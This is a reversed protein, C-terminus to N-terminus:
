ISNDLGSNPDLSLGLAMDIIEQRSHVGLKAYINRTHYNVTGASISLEEQIRASSRGEAILVVVEGERESLAFRESLQACRAVIAEHPTLPAAGVAISPAPPIDAVEEVATAAEDGHESAAADDAAVGGDAASDDAAAHPTNDVLGDEGATAGEASEIFSFGGRKLVLVLAVTVLLGVGAMLAFSASHAIAFPDAGALAGDGVLSGVIDSLAYACRAGLYVRAPSAHRTRAFLTSAFLLLLEFVVSGIPYVVDVLFDASFRMQPLMIVLLGTVPLVFLATFTRQALSFLAMGVFLLTLGTVAIDFWAGYNYSVAGGSFSGLLASIFGIVAICGLFVTTLAGAGWTGHVARPAMETRIGRMRRESWALCGGGLLPLAILFAMQLQTPLYSMSLCLAVEALLLTALNEIVTRADFRGFLAAWRASVLASGVGTLVGAVVLYALMPVAADAVYFFTGVSTALPAAIVMSPRTATKMFRRTFFVGLLTMVALPIVSTYYTLTHIGEPRDLIDGLAGHGFFLLYIWAPHFAFGLLDIKLDAFM